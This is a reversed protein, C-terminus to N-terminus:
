RDALQADLRDIAERFPGDIGIITTFHQKSDFDEDATTLLGGLDIGRLELGGSPSKGVAAGGSDGPTSVCNTKHTTPLSPFAQSVLAACPVISSCTGGAPDEHVSSVLYIPDGEHTRGSEALPLMPLGDLPEQVAFVMYDSGDFPSPSKESRGSIPAIKPDLRIIRDDSLQIYCQGPPISETIAWRNSVYELKMRMHSNTVLIRKSKSKVYVANGSYRGCKLPVTVQALWSAMVASKPFLRSFQDVCLPANTASAAVRLLDNFNTAAASAGPCGPGPIAKAAPSISLGAFLGLGLIKLNRLTKLPDM